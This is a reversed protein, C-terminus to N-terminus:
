RRRKRTLYLIARQLPVNCRPWKESPQARTYENAVWIPSGDDLQRFIRLRAEYILLM